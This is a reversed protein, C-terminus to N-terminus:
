LFGLSFIGLLFYKQKRRLQLKNLVPLPMIFIALDTVINGAANIYWFPLNPICTGPLDTQWFKSVPNCTFIVVCIQSIAWAMIFTGLIWIVRKMQHVALVRYYQCLFTLKILATTVNYLVISFWFTQRYNTVTLLYNTEWM